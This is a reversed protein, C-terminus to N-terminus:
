TIVIFAFRRHPALSCNHRTEGQARPFASNALKWRQAGTHWHDLKVPLFQSIPPQELKVSFQVVLPQFIRNNALEADPVRPVDNSHKNQKCGELANNIKIPKFGLM